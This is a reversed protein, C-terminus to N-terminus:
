LDIEGGIESAVEKFQAENDDLYTTFTSEDWIELYKGMGLITCDKKLYAFKRLPSPIAVSNGSVTRDGESMASSVWTFDFNQALPSFSTVVSGSGRRPEPQGNAIQFEVPGRNSVLMLHHQSVIRGCLEDLSGGGEWRDGLEYNEMRM